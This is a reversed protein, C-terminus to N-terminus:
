EPLTKGAILQPLAFPGRAQEFALALAILRADSNVSGFFSLGVPLGGVLGAPVTVAPYGAVAALSSSGIGSTQDGNVLDTLWAPGTTPAIIADLQYALMPVDIGQRTLRQCVQLSNLYAPETLPGKAQARILRDQGFYPMVAASHADNFAIIAQLSQMPAGSDRLYTNLGAKFEYFFVEFEAAGLGSRDIEINDIIKAGQARLQAISNNFLAEVRADNGAGSYNRLVGIRAGQLSAQELGGLVAAAMAADDLMAVYLLAADSVTPAMPGATDQSRAIPIIGNASVLGLTPKIGVIGNSSAPCVISGDTETGVALPALGAAVAVASGSSSGCPNRGPGWPNQTQGGLSSWGSTSHDSRFNAWESLNTKGLVIAGAARLRAVLAADHRAHHDKMALSGASTALKDATDINAKLLVPIGHLAGRSTGAVREADLRDAIDLADPNLEIVANLAPGQRDLRLTRDLYYATLQRASFDGAAMRAQLSRADMPGSEIAAIAAAGPPSAFTPIMATKEGPQCAVLLLMLPLLLSLLLGIKM